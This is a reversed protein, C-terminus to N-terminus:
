YAPTIGNIFQAVLSKSTYAYSNGGAGISGTFPLALGVATMKVVGAPLPTEISRYVMKGIKFLFKYPTLVGDTFTEPSKVDLELSTETLASPSSSALFKNYEVADEFFMELTATVLQHESWIRSPYNTDSRLTHDANVANEITLHAMSLGTVLTGGLTADVCAFPLPRQPSPTLSPTLALAPVFYLGTWEQDLRCIAAKTMVLETKNNMMGAFGYQLDGEDHWFDYTPLQASELAEFNHAHAETVGGGTVTDKGFGGMLLNAIAPSPELELSAKLNTITAPGKVAKLPIERAALIAPSELPTISPFWGWPPLFRVYETPATIGVPPSTPPTGRKAFAVTRLRGVRIAM